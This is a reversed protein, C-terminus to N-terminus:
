YELEDAARQCSMCGLDTMDFYREFPVYLQADKIMRSPPTRCHQKYCTRPSGWTPAATPAAGSRISM